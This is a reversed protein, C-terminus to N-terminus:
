ELERGRRSEKGESGRECWVLSSATAELVARTRTSGSGAARDQEPAALAPSPSPPAGRVVGSEGGCEGPPDHLVDRDPDTSARRSAPSSPDPDPDPDCNYTLAFSSYHV